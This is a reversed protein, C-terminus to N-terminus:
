RREQELLATRMAATDELQAIRGAAAKPGRSLEDRLFYLATVAFVGTLAYNGPVFAFAEPWRGTLVVAALGIAAPALFM